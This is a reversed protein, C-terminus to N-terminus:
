SLPLFFRFSTGEGVKSALLIEGRCSDAISRCIALGLGTGVNEDKTTFFAEFIEAMSETAIGPGNDRVEAFAMPVDDVDSSLARFVSWGREEEESAVEEAAAAGTAIEILGRDVNRTADLANVLLNTIVQEIQTADGRVEPLEFNFSTHVDIGQTLPLFFTLLDDCVSNLNLDSVEAHKKRSFNLINRTLDKLRQTGRHMATFVFEQEETNEEKLLLELHGSIVALPNNIEHIIASAMQGMASMRESRVLMRQAQKLQVHAQEIESLRQQLERNRARLEQYAIQTELDSVSLIGEMQRYAMELEDLLYTNEAQLKEDNPTSKRSM